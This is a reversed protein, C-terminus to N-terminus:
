STTKIAESGSRGFKDVMEEVIREALDRFLKELDGRTLNNFKTDRGKKNKEEEEKEKDGFFSKATTEVFDGLKTFTSKQDEIKQIANSEALDKIKDFQQNLSIIKETNLKNISTVLDGIALSLDKFAKVIKFFRKDSKVLGFLGGGISKMVQSFAVLKNMKGVKMFKQQNDDWYTWQAINRSSDDKLFEDIFDLFSKVNKPNVSTNSAAVIAGLGASVGLLSEAVLQLKDAKDVLKTIFSIPNRLEAEKKTGTLWRVTGAIGELVSNVADLAAGGTMVLFYASLGASIAILGGMISIGKKLTLKSLTTLLKDIDDTKELITEFFGKKNSNVIGGKAVNIQNGFVVTGGSKLAARALEEDRNPNFGFLGFLKLMAHTFVDILSVLGFSIVRILMKTIEEAVYVMSDVFSNFASGKGFINNPLLSLAFGVALIVGAGILMALGGMLLGVPTAMMAIKGVVAIIAGIIGLTMMLKQQSDLWEKPFIRLKDKEPMYTMLWTVALFAGAAGVFILGGILLSKIGGVGAIRGTIAIIIAIMGISTFVMPMSKLWEESIIRLKDAEPLYTLLWTTGLFAAGAALLILGGIVVSRLGTRGVLKSVVVLILSIFGITLFVPILSMLFKTSPLVVKSALAKWDVLSLMFTILGIAITAMALIIITKFIPNNFLGTFIKGTGTKINKLGGEQSVAKYIPTIILAAIGIILLVPLFASLFELPPIPAMFIPIFSLAVTILGIAITAALLVIVAKGIDGLTSLINGGIINSLKPKGIKTRSLITMVRAIVLSFIALPIALFTLGIGMLIMSTVIGPDIRPMFTMVFAVMVIGVSLGVITAIGLGIGKGSVASGPNISGSVIKNKSPGKLASFVVSFVKAFVYLTFGVGVIWAIPPVDKASVKIVGFLKFVSALLVLSIGFAPLVAMMKLFGKIDQFINFRKNAKGRAGGIVNGKDNVLSAREGGSSAEQIAQYLRIFATVIAGLTLSALYVAIGLKIPSGKVSSAAMLLKPMVKALVLSMSFTILSTLGLTLLIRKYPIQGIILKKKEKKTFLKSLKPDTILDIKSDSQSNSWIVSYLSVFSEVLPQVAYALITVALAKSIINLNDPGTNILSLAALVGTLAFVTVIIAAFSGFLMAQKGGGGSNLGFFQKVSLGRGSFVYRYIGADVLSGLINQRRGSTMIQLLNGFAESMPMLSQALVTMLYSKVTLSVVSGISIEGIDVASLARLAAGLTYIMIPVTFFMVGIKLPNAVGKVESIKAFAAFIPILAYSVAAMGLIVNPIKIGTNGMGFIKGIDTGGTDGIVESAAPIIEKISRMAVGVTSIMIPIAFRILLLKKVNNLISNGKSFVSQFEDYLTIVGLTAIIGIFLNFLKSGSDLSFKNGSLNNLDLRMNLGHDFQPIENIKIITDAVIKVLLGTSSSLTLFIASTISISEYVKYFDAFLDILKKLIFVTILASFVKSNPNISLTSPNAIGLFGSNSNIGHDLYPMKNLEEAIFVAYNAMFRVSEMAVLVKVPNPLSKLDNITELSKLLLYIAATFKLSKTEIDKDVLNFAKAINLLGVSVISLSAAIGFDKGIAKLSNVFSSNGSEGNGSGKKESILKLYKNSEKDGKELNTLIKGHDTLIKNTVKIEKTVSSAFKDYLNSIVDVPNGFLTSM